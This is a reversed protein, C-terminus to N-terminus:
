FLDELPLPTCEHPGAYGTKVLKPPLLYRVQMWLKYLGPFGLSGGASDSGDYQERYQGFSESDAHPIPSSISGLIGRM